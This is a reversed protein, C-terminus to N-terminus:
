AVCPGRCTPGHEGAVEREEAAVAVVTEQPDGLDDTFQAVPKVGEGEVIEQEIEGAALGLGHREGDDQLHEGAGEGVWRSQGWNSPARLRMRRQDSCGSSSVM